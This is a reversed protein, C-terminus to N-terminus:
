RDAQREGHAGSVAVIRRPHRGPPRLCPSWAVCCRPRGGDGPQDADREPDDTTPEITPSVNGARPSDTRANWCTIIIQLLNSAAAPTIPDRVRVRPAAPPALHHEPRRDRLDPRAAPALCADRSRGRKSHPHEPSRHRSGAASASPRPGLGLRHLRTDSPRAPSSPARGRPPRPEARLRGLRSRIRRAHRGVKCGGTFAHRRLNRRHRSRTPSSLPGQPLPCRRAVMRGPDAGGDAATAPSSTRGGAARRAPRLLPKRRPRVLGVVCQGPHLPGSLARPASRARIGRADRGRLLDGGPLTTPRTSPGRRAADDLYKEPRSNIEVRGRAACGGGSRPRHSRWRDIRCSRTRTAMRRHASSEEDSRLDLAVLIAGSGDPAPLPLTEWGRATLRFAAHQLQPEPPALAVAPQRSGAHACFRTVPRAGPNM